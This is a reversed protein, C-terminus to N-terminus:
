QEKEGNEEAGAADPKAAAKPKATPDTTTQPVFKTGLYGIHSIGIIKIMAPTLAPMQLIMSAESTRMMVWLVSGYMLLSMVTFFFMQVKGVDLVAANAVEDGELMDMFRADRPDSNGYLIGRRNEEIAAGSEGELMSATRDAVKESNAPEVSEKNKKIMTSLVASGSAIGLLQWVEDPVIIDLAETVSNVDTHFARSLGITLIASGIMITWATIQFRTLSMVNRENILIGGVRYLRQLGMAACVLVVTGMTIMWAGAVSLPRGPATNAAAAVTIASGFVMIWVLRKNTEPLDLGLLWVVWGPMEAPPPRRAVRANSM